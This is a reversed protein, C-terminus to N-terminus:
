RSGKQRENSFHSSLIYYSLVFGNYQSQVLWGLLLLLRLLLFLFRLGVQECVLSNM